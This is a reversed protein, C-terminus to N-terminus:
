LILSVATVRDTAEWDDAFARLSEITEPDDATWQSFLSPKLTIADIGM